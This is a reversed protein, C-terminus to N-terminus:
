TKNPKAPTSPQGIYAAIYPKTLNEATIPQEIYAFIDDNAMMRAAAYRPRNTGIYAFVEVNKLM